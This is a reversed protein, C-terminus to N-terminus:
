HSKYNISFEKKTIKEGNVIAVARNEDIYKVIEPTVAILIILLVVVVSAFIAIKTKQTM